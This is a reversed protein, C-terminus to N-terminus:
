NKGWFDNCGLKQGFIGGLIRARAPGCKQSKNVGPIGQDLEGINSKLGNTNKCVNTKAYGMNGHAM